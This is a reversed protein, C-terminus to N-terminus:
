SLNLSASLSLVFFLSSLHTTPVIDFNALPVGAMFDSPIASWRHVIM